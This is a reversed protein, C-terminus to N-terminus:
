RVKLDISYHFMFLVSRNCKLTIWSRHKRFIHVDEGEAKHLELQLQSKASAEQDLQELLQTHHLLLANKAEGGENFQEDLVAQLARLQELKPSVCSSFSILTRSENCNCGSSAWSEVQVTSDSVLELLKDVAARLRTCAGLVLEEREPDLEGDPGSFLSECLWQSLELGEDIVSSFMSCNSEGEIAGGDVDAPFSFVLFLHFGKFLNKRSSLM